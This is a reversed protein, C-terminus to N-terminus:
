NWCLYSFAVRCNTLPLDANCKLMEIIANGNQPENSWAIFQTFNDVKVVTRVVMEVSQGLDTATALHAVLGAQREGM